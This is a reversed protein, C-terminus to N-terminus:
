QRSEKLNLHTYAYQLSFLLDGVRIEVYHTSPNRVVHFLGNAAENLSSHM